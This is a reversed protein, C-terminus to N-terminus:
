DIKLTSWTPKRKRKIRENKLQCPPAKTTRNVARRSTHLLKAPSSIAFASPSARDNCPSLERISASCGFPRPFQSAPHGALDQVMIELLDHVFVERVYRLLTGDLIGVPIGVQSSLRFAIVSLLPYTKCFGRNHCHSNGFTEAQIGLDNRGSFFICTDKHQGPV